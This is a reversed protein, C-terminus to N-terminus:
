GTGATRRHSDASCQLQHSHISDNGTGTSRNRNPYGFVFDLFLPISAILGLFFSSDHTPHHCGLDITMTQRRGAQKDNGIDNGQERENRRRRITVIKRTDLLYIGQIGCKYLLFKLPHGVIRIHIDRVSNHVGHRPKDKRYWTLENRNGTTTTTNRHYRVIFSSHSHARFLM